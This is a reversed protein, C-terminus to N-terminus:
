DWQVKDLIKLIREVMYGFAAWLPFYDLRIYGMVHWGTTYEWPCQGTFLDLLGGTIFEVLLIGVGYISARLIAPLHDIFKLVIPFLLGALGYIPFMWIYSQGKLRWDIPLGEQFRNINDTIATFFIETTMGVCAM